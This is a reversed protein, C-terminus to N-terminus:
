PRDANQRRMRTMAEKAITAKAILGDRQGAGASAKDYYGAIYLAALERLMKGRQDFSEKMAGLYSARRVLTSWYAHAVIHKPALLIEEELKAETGKEGNAAWKARLEHAIEADTKALADKASDRESMAMVYLESVEQYLIPQQIVDEDLTNRDIKIKERLGAFEERPDIYTHKNAVADAGALTTENGGVDETKIKSKIRM